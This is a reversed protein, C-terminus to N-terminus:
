SRGGKLFRRTAFGGLLCIGGIATMIISGPEPVTTSNAVLGGAGYNSQWSALDGASLPSPSNGRQWALFDRGDVDGDNDFDGAQSGVDGAVISMGRTSEYAWGTITGTADAENDIRVGIWGYWWQDPMSGNNLGLKGADNLDVRVGLYRTEGNNGLFDDLQPFEPQPGFPVTVADGGLITDIQGADEDILRNARITTGTGIFNSGEQFDWLTGEILSASGTAGIVDGAKLGVAYGGQDGFSNTFTLFQHDGNAQTGNLPFGEQYTVPMALPNEASSVDNKDVQLYDLISGNLNVRDHDIQFDIQGDLNFDVNVDGNIGFTHPTTHGVVAGEASSAAVASIGSAATLYAMLRTDLGPLSGHVKGNRQPVEM